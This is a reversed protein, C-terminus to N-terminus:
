ASRLLARANDRLIADRAAPEIRAATVQFLTAEIVQVPWLSGFLLRNVPASKVLREIGFTPGRHRSIDAFLMPHQKMRGALSQPQNLGSVVLPQQDYIAVAYEIDHMPLEPVKLMWHWREDALRTFIQVVMGRDRAVRMIPEVGADYLHYGHYSPVLRLGRPQHRDLLAELGGLAGPRVVPWVDLRSDDSWETAWEAYADLGNECFIAEYPSIVCRGISLTSCVKLLDQVGSRLIKRFPYAGGWAAVDITGAVSNAAGVGKLVQAALNSM